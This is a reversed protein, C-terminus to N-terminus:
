IKRYRADALSYAGFLILGAAVVILAATGYAHHTLRVLAGDVGVADRPTYNIAAKLVFIGIL